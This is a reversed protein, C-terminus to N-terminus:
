EAIEAVAAAPPGLVTRDYIMRRKGHADIVALKNRSIRLKNRAVNIRGVDIIELRRRDSIIRLILLNHIKHVPESIRRHSLVARRSKPQM